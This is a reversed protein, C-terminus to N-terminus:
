RAGGVMREVDEVEIPADKSLVECGHETLLVDDEIRVGIGAYVGFRCPADRPLM